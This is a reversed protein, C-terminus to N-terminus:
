IKNDERRGAGLGAVFARDEGSLQATALLEPRREITRRLSERRRWRAIVGHDGSLLVEPVRHGRFEAPRTYHPHELLGDSFSDVRASNEDGLAGPLLRVVADVIVMAALEGGSIVYDGLSLEDDVFDRIREDVGEYRGCILAVRGRTALSAAEVQDFVRGQPTLLVRWVEGEAMLSEIAAALPEVKMVMGPGGGYPRDDTTRHKDHTFDRLQVLRVRVLGAGIAKGVVGYDLAGFMEPFITVIDFTM